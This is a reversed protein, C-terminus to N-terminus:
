FCIESELPEKPKLAKADPTKNMKKWMEMDAASFLFLFNLFFFIVVVEQGYM